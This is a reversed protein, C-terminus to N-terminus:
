GSWRPYVPHRLAPVSTTPRALLGLPVATRVEYFTLEGTVASQRRSPRDRMGRDHRDM